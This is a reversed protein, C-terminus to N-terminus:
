PLERSILALEPAVVALRAHSPAFRVRPTDYRWDTLPFDTAILEQESAADYVAITASAEGAV